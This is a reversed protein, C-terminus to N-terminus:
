ITKWFIKRPKLNKINSDKIDKKSDEKKLNLLNGSEELRSLYVEFGEPDAKPVYSLISLITNKDAVDTFYFKGDSSRLKLQNCSTVLETHKIKLRSKLVKWYNRADRSGTVIAVVDVVSFLWKNNKTDFEKRIKRGDIEM